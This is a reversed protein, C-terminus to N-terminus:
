SFHDLFGVVLYANNWTKAIEISIKKGKEHKSLSKILLLHLALVRPFNNHFQHYCFQREKVCIPTQNNKNNKKKKKALM